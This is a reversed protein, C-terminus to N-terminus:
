SRPRWHCLPVVSLLIATAGFVVAIEPMGFLRRLSWSAIAPAAIIAAVLALVAFRRYRYGSSLGRLLRSAGGLALGMLVACVLLTPIIVDWRLTPPGM